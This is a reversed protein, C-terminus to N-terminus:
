FNYHEHKILKHMGESLQAGKKIWEHLKDQDITLIHPKPVPDYFGIKEVYKGDRKKSEEIVVIRYKPNNRKGVRTLRIKVAM